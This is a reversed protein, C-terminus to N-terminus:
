QVPTEAKVGEPTILVTILVNPGRFIVSPDLIEVAGGDGQSPNRPRRSEPKSQSIRTGTLTHILYSGCASFFFQGIGKVRERSRWVQPACCQQVTGSKLWEEDNTNTFRRRLSEETSYSHHGSFAQSTPKRIRIILLPSWHWSLYKHVWIEALWFWEHVETDALWFGLWPSRSVRNM